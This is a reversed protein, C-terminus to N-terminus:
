FNARYNLGVWFKSDPIWSGKLKSDKSLRTLSLGIADSFNLNLSTMTNFGAIYQFSIEYFPVKSIQIFDLLSFKEILDPKEGIKGLVDFRIYFSPLATFSENNENLPKSGYSENILSGTTDYNTLYEEEFFSREYLEKNNSIAVKRLDKLRHAIKIYHIGPTATFRGVFPVKIPVQVTAGFLAYSDLINISQISDPLTSWSTSDSVLLTPSNLIDGSSSPYFSFGILGHFDTSTSFLNEINGRAYLGLYESKPLDIDTKTTAFDFSIPLRFGFESRQTAVGLEAGGGLEGPLGILTNGIRMNSAYQLMNSRMSFSSLSMKFNSSHWVSFQSGYSAMLRDSESKHFVTESDSNLYQDKSVLVSQIDQSFIWDVRERDIVTYDLGNGYWIEYIENTNGKQQVIIIQDTPGMETIGAGYGEDLTGNNTDDTYKLKIYDSVADEMLIHYPQHDVTWAIYKRKDLAIVETEVADLINITVDGNIALSQDKSDTVMYSLNYTNNQNKDKPNEFDPEKLFAIDGSRTIKFLDKDVSKTLKYKLGSQNSDPDEVNIRTIIKGADESHNINLDKDGIIIPAENINKVNVALNLVISEGSLDSVQLSLNFVKEKEYDFSRKTLLKKGDLRFDEKSDRALGFTFQDKKDPDEVILTGVLSGIPKNEFIGNKTLSLSKPSDNVPKIKISVKATGSGTGIDVSYSFSDEGNENLFPTYRISQDQLLAEGKKPPTIIVIKLNSKDTIGDNKLISINISEDELLEVKDNKLKLQGQSFLITIFFFVTTLIKFISIM